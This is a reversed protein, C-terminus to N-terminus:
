FAIWSFLYLVDNDSARRGGAVDYQSGAGNFRSYATYQLGLRLNQWANFNLEGTMGRSDPSGTRSGVVPAPAFRLTDTTGGISFFGLTAGLRDTPLWSASVRASHLTADPRSVGGAAFTADLSESERIYSARGILMADPGSLRQELQADVGLTTYHDTPGSVGAPYLRAGAFGFGGIMLYTRDRTQQFALRAYPIVGRIVDTATSDLPAAAGQPASRYATLEAYLHNDWLAYGGAGLVSQALAGEILTGAAPSPASSSSMFPYGWAPVTNWVDQVTPNNHVTLGLLLDKDGVTRHTAYRLDLNDVGIAGDQAAYTFQTFAGVNPTIAGALFLSAQDPFQATGNQTGPLASGLHAFSTVIMASVPPITALKLTPRASDGEVIQPLGTMTYGNLKFLRGFPTLQPFQYHCTGCALGTQRSFSPVARTASALAVILARPAVSTRASVAAIPDTRGGTGAPELAFVPSAFTAIAALAGSSVHLLSIARPSSFRFRRIQSRM